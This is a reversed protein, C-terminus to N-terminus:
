NTPPLLVMLMSALVTWTDAASPGIGTPVCAPSTMVTLLKLVGDVIVDWPPPWSKLRSGSCTPPTETVKSETTRLLATSLANPPAAIMAPDPTAGVISWKAIVFEVNVFLAAFM